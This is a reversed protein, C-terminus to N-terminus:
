KQVLNMKSLLEKVLLKRLLDKNNQHFKEFIEEFMPQQIEGKELLNNISIGAGFRHSHINHINAVVLDNHIASRGELRVLTQSTSGVGEFWGQSFDWRQDEVNLILPSIYDNKQFIIRPVLINDNKNARFSDIVGYDISAVPKYRDVCNLLANLRKEAEPWVMEWRTYKHCSVVIQNNGLNGAWERQGNSSFFALDKSTPSVPLIEPQAGFAFRIEASDNIAPYFEKLKNENEQFRQADAQDIPAGLSVAFIATEIAHDGAHLAIKEFNESM